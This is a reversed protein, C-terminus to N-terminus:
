VLDGIRDPLRGSNNHMKYNALFVDVELPLEMEQLRNHCASKCPYLSVNGHNTLEDCWLYLELTDLVRLWQLEDEDLEVMKLMGLRGFLDIEAKNYADALEPNDWKATAPLDGLWREPLDHFQCARILNLSPNPHLLLLLSVVGYSHEAVNYAPVNPLAHFRAVTGSERSAKVQVIKNM